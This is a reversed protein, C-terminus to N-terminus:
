GAKNDINNVVTRNHMPGVRIRGNYWNEDADHGERLGSSYVEPGVPGFCGNQLSDRVFETIAM